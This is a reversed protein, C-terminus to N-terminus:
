FRWPPIAPGSSFVEELYCGSHRAPEKGSFEAHQLIRYALVNHWKGDGLLVVAGSPHDVMWTSGGPPPGFEGRATRVVIANGLATRDAKLPWICLTERGHAPLCAGIYPTGDATRSISVPAEQRTRPSDIILEWTAGADASRWVKVLNARGEGVGRANFLLSGDGDRVVSPEAWSEGQPTVPSFEVPRWVGESRRWRALGSASVGGKVAHLAQLLDDGDPVANTIGPANIRWGTDGIPPHTHGEQPTGKVGTFAEGDYSFQHSELRHIYKDKWSFEGKDNMPFSIAQCIGFGTGAHPHPTGDARKAGLPVFGGIVPYKVVIRDEGTQPDKHTENRSVPVAGETSINALDDFLIVDTGYEYDYVTVNELRLNCFVAAKGKAVQFPFGLGYRLVKGEPMQAPETLDAQGATIWTVRPAMAAAPKADPM